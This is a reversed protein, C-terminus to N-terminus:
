QNKDVLEVDCTEIEGVCTLLLIHTKMDELGGPEYWDEPGDCSYSVGGTPAFRTGTKVVRRGLVEFQMGQYNDSGTYIIQRENGGFGRREVLAKAAVQLFYLPVGHTPTGLLRGRPAYDNLVDWAVGVSWDEAVEDMLEYWVLPYGVRKVWRPNVVRLRDGVRWVHRKM